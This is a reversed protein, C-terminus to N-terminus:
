PAPRAPAPGGDHGYPKLDRDNAGCPPLDIQLPTSAGPQKFAAISVLELSFPSGLRDPTFPGFVSTTCGADRYVRHEWAPVALGRVRALTWRQDQWGAALPGAELAM